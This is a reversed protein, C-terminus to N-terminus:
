NWKGLEEEILEKLEKLDETELAQIVSKWKKLLENNM